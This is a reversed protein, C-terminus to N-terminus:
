QPTAKFFATSSRRWLFAVATLGVLWVIGLISAAAGVYMVRVANLVSAPAPRHRTDPMQTDPPYPQYLQYM